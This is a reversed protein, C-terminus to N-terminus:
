LFIHLAVPQVPASCRQRRLQDVAHHLVPQQQVKIKRLDNASRHGPQLRHHEINQPEARILNQQQVFNRIRCRDILRDFLRFMIYVFFGGTHGVATQARQRPLLLAEALRLIKGRAVTM